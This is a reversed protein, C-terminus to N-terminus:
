ILRAGDDHRQVRRAQVVVVIRLLKCSTLLILQRVLQGRPLRKDLESLALSFTPLFHDVAGGVQVALCRLLNLSVERRLGLGRGGLRAEGVNGERIM